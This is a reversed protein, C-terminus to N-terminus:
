HDRGVGGALPQAAGGTRRCLRHAARLPHRQQGPHLGHSYDHADQRERLRLTGTGHRGREARGMSRQERDRQPLHGGSAHDTRVGGRPQRTPREGGAHLERARGPLDLETHGHHREDREGACSGARGAAGVSHRGPLTWGDGGASARLQVGDTPEATDTSTGMDRRGARHVHSVVQSMQATLATGVQVLWVFGGRTAMESVLSALTLGTYTLPFRSQRDLGKRGDRATITIDSTDAARNYTWGDIYFVGTYVVNGAAGQVSGPLVYGESVRLVANRVLPTAAGQSYQGRSNDLTVVVDAASGDSQVREYSLVDASCDKYHTPTAGTGDFFPCRLVTDSSLLFSADVVSVWCGGYTSPHLVEELAETWHLADISSMVALHTYFTGTYTGTDSRVYCLRYSPPAGTIGPTAWYDLHPASLTITGNPSDVIQLVTYPTSGWSGLAYTTVVISSGGYTLGTPPATAVAAVVTYTAGNNRATISGPGMGYVNGASWPAAVVGAIIPAVTYSNVGVNYAVFLVSNADGAIGYCQGPLVVLDTAAGWTVGNDFSDVYRLMNTGSDQFLLRIRDSMQAVNVGATTQATTYTAAGWAPFPQTLANHPIKRVYVNANPSGADVYAQVLGLDPAVLTHNRGTNGTTTGVQQWGTTAVAYNLLEVKLDPQSAGSGAATIAATFDGNPSVRM